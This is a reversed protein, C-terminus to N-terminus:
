HLSDIQKVSIRVLFLNAIIIQGVISFIFKINYIQQTPDKVLKRNAATKSVVLCYFLSLFLDLFLFQSVTFAVNMQTCMYTICIYKNFAFVILYKMVIRTNELCARGNRLITSVCSISDGKYCFHSTINSSEKFNISIGIDASLLAGCDNAGDGCMAVINDPKSKFLNVISIKDNPEM